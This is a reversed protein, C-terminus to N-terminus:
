PIKWQIPEGGENEIIENTRSFHKCGFFGKYASLPSPHNAVLLHHKNPDILKIKQQAQKGWLMFILSEREESLYNIVADTFEEWGQKKHSGAQSKRVTLTSNLLFVGQKAWSELNGHHPPPYGLDSELEKFINRLSPPIKVGKCVSFSLGHAQGMGHYPDQGLIVAKIKEPKTLNFASFINEKAPFVFESEFEQDLFAALKGFYKKKFENQMAEKWEACLSDLIGM